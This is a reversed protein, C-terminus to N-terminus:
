GYNMELINTSLHQCVFFVVKQPLPM